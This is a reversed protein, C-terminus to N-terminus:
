YELQSRRLYQVKLPLTKILAAYLTKRAGSSKAHTFDVLLSFYAGEKEDLGLGRSFHPVYGHSLRRRGNLVESFYGTSTIGAMRCFVRHSYSKALSKRTRYFDNLYKRYDLYEFVSVAATM